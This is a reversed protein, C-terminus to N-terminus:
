SKNLQDVQLIIPKILHPNNPNRPDTQCHRSGRIETGERQNNKWGNRDWTMNETIAARAEKKSPAWITIEEWRPNNVKVTVVYKYQYGRKMNRRLPESISLNIGM